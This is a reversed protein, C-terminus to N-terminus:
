ESMPTTVVTIKQAVSVANQIIQPQTRSQFRQDFLEALACPDLGLEFRHHEAVPQIIFGLDRQVPDRLLCQGVDLAM